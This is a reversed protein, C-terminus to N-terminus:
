SSTTPWTKPDKTEHAATKYGEIRDNICRALENLTDALKPNAALLISPFPHRPLPWWRLLATCRAYRRYGSHPQAHSTKAWISRM